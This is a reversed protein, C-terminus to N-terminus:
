GEKDRRAKTARLKEFLKRALGPKNEQRARGIAMAGDPVDSTIVSGSATMADDGVRVPAVLMTDSGIF